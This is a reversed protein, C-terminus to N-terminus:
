NVILVGSSISSWMHRVQNQWKAGPNQFTGGIGQLQLLIRMSPPNVMNSNLSSVYLVIWTLHSPQAQLIKFVMNTSTHTKENSTQRM